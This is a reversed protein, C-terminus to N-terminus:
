TQLRETERNRRRPMRRSRRRRAMPPRMADPEERRLSPGAEDSSMPDFSLYVGVLDGKKLGRRRREPALVASIQVKDTVEDAVEDQAVLRAALLQDGPQLDTAAVNAGVDDLDTIAGPQELRAPIQEVSVSSKITEAEAGKPM